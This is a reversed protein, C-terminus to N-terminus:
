DGIKSKDDFLALYVNKFASMYIKALQQPTEQKGTKHWRSLITWASSAVIDMTYDGTAKKTEVIPYFMKNHTTIIQHIGEIMSYELNADIILSVLEQEEDIKKFFSQILFLEDEPVNQKYYDIMDLYFETFLSTVKIKIIDEKSSFNRYFTARSIGAKKIVESINIESFKKTKQLRALAEFTWERTYKIRMDIKENSFM